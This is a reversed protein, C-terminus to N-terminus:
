GRGGNACNNAVVGDMGAAGKRDALDNPNIVPAGWEGAGHADAWSAFAGGRLRPTSEDAWLAIRASHGAVLRSRLSLWDIQQVHREPGIPALRAHLSNIMDTGLEM